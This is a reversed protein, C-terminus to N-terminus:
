FNFLTQTNTAETKKHNSKPQQMKAYAENTAKQMAEKRAEEKEQATLEVQHNVVVNCSVPSGVTVSDEDFYHIAMSYIEDDAFGNCGSREVENLIYIVCDDFNKHPKAYSTAFLKDEIARNHLYTKITKRFHETGKM